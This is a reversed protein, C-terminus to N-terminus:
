EAALKELADWYKAASNVMFPDPTIGAKRMREEVVETNQDISDFLSLMKNLTIESMQM